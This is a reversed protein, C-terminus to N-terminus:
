GGDARIKKVKELRIWHYFENYSMGDTIGYYLEGVTKHLKEAVIFM